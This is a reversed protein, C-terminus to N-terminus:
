RLINAFLVMVCKVMVKVCYIINGVYFETRVNGYVGDENM